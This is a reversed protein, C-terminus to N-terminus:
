VFSRLGLVLCRGHFDSDQGQLAIEVGVAAAELFETGFNDEDFLGLLEIGDVTEDDGAAFGTGEELKEAFFSEILEPLEYVELRGKAGTCARNKQGALYLVRLLFAQSGDIDPDAAIGIAALDVARDAFTKEATRRQFHDKDAGGFDLVDAFADFDESRFAGIGDRDALSSGHGGGEVGFEGVVSADVLGKEIQDRVREDLVRASDKGPPRRKGLLQRAVSASVASLL